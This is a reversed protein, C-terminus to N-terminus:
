IPRHLWKRIARRLFFAELGSFRVERPKCLRPWNTRQGYAQTFQIAVGDDRCILRGARQWRDPQKRLSAMIQRALPSLYV